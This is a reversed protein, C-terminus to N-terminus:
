PNAKTELGCDGALRVFAASRLKGGSFRGLFPLLRFDVLSEFQAWEIKPSRNPKVQGYEAICHKKGAQCQFEPQLSAANPRQRSDIDFCLKEISISQYSGTQFALLYPCM